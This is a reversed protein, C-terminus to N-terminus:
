FHVPRSSWQVAQDKQKLANNARLKPLSPGAKVMTKENLMFKIKSM